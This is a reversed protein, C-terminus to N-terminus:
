IIKEENELNDESEKELKRGKTSHNSRKKTDHMLYRFASVVFSILHFIFEKM